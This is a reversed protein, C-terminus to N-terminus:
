RRSWASRRARRWGAARSRCSVFVIDGLQDTAYNTIGVTVLGNEQRAWEHDRTYRVDDPYSM